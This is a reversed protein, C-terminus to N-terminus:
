LYDIWFPNYIIHNNKPWTTIFDSTHYLKKLKTLKKISKDSVLECGIISLEVLNTLKEIVKDTIKNRYKKKNIKISLKTLKSMKKILEIPPDACLLTLTKLNTLNDLTNQPINSERMDLYLTELCLLKDIIKKVNVHRRIDINLETLNLSSLEIINKVNGITLKKLSKMNSLLKNVNDKKLMCEICRFEELQDGLKNIIDVTNKHTIYTISIKKINPFQNYIESIYWDNNIILEELQKINTKNKDGIVECRYLLLKELNNPFKWNCIKIDILNLIKLQNFYNFPIQSQPKDSFTNNRNIISLKQINKYCKLKDVNKINENIIKNIVLNTINLQNRYYDINEEFKVPRPNYKIMMNDILNIINNFSVAMYKFSIDTLYKM